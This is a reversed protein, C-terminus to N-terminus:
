DGIKELIQEVTKAWTFTERLKQGAPNPTKARKEAETFATDIQEATVSYINGQNFPAGQQFFVGDYVPRMGAPEVLISNESTAWDKHATCNLVISWKGLATTTFSPINWAESSSLGALCIDASNYVQNMEANTRLLPLINVNFPKPKGEFCANYLSPMMDQQANPPQFFPNTVALTLKHKPNGGYRKVWTKVILETNKRQEFKTGALVWHTEDEPTLRYPLPQFDEDHGLPIFSVNRAGYTRFTDVTWSSSFFTGDQQNAINIEADTAQDCEHFSFTFQRDTLKQEAGNLHWLRFSPVKRDLKTLRNNAGHQLWAAFQSDGKFAGFDPNGIPFWVIQVKRRYLERLINYSVQGLSLQSVPATVVLKQLM